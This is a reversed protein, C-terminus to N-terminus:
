AKVGRKELAPSSEAAHAAGAPGAVDGSIKRCGYPRVMGRTQLRGAQDHTLGDPRLGSAVDTLAHLDGRELGRSTWTQADFKTMVQSILALLVFGGALYVYEMPMTALGGSLGDFCKDVPRRTSAITYGYRGKEGRAPPESNGRKPLM